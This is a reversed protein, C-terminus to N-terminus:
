ASSPMRSAGETIWHSSNLRTSKRDAGLGKRLAEAFVAVLPLILVLALFALVLGILLCKAWLPDDTPRRATRKDRSIL